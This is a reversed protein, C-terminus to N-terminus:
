REVWKALGVAIFGVAIAIVGAALQRLLAVGDPDTAGATFVSEALVIVLWLLGIFITAWGGFAIRESKV